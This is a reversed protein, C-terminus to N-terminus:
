FSLEEAFSQRKEFQLAGFSSGWIQQNTNVDMGVDLSTWTTETIEVHSVLYTLCDRKQILCQNGPEVAGRFLEGERQFIMSCHYRRQLADPKITKLISLERAAGAYRIPDSLSYNEIYIQNGQDVLRHVGQRYPTWLDHDYVQESYFGIAQFFEWPLPRFFIRIHAFQQPNQFSQQYNSFDGAMWQALTMLDNQTM